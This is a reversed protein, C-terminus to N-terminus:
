QSVRIGEVQEEIQIELSKVKSQYGKLEIVYNKLTELEADSLPTERKALQEEVSNLYIRIREKTKDKIENAVWDFQSKMQNVISNFIENMTKTAQKNILNIRKSRMEQQGVFVTEVAEAVNGITSFLLSLIFQIFNGNKEAGIQSHILWAYHNTTQNKFSENSKIELQVQKLKEKIWINIDNELRVLSESFSQQINLSLSESQEILYVNIEKTAYLPQSLPIKIMENKLHKLSVSKGNWIMQEIKGFVVKKFNEIRSDMEALQFKVDKIDQQVKKSQEADLFRTECISISEALSDNAQNLASYLRHLGTKKQSLLFDWITDNLGEVSSVDSLNNNNGLASLYLPPSPHFQNVKYESFEDVLYEKLGNLQEENLADVKNIVIFIKEASNRLNQFDNLIDKSLIFEGSAMPSASIVYIIANSNLLASDSLTRIDDNPDNLGPIDYLAIGREFNQNFIRATILKVKKKNRKNKKQNAYQEIFEINVKGKELRGDQFLVECEEKMGPIICLPVGTTPLIGVPSIEKKVLANILTSKGARNQGAIAISYIAKSLKDELETLVKTLYKDRRKNSSKLISDILSVIENNFHFYSGAKLITGSPRKWRYVYNNITDLNGNLPETLKITVTGQGVWKPNENILSNILEEDIWKFYFLRDNEDFYCLMTPLNSNYWYNIKTTSISISKKNKKSKSTESSKLQVDFKKGTVLRDKSAIIPQTIEVGADVGYDNEHWHRVIWPSIVDNFRTRSEDEKQHTTSQIPLHSKAM